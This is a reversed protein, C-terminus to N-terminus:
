RFLEDEEVSILLNQFTQQRRSTGDTFLQGWKKAVGLRYASLTQVIVLLMSRARRITWVSPLELVQCQPSFHHVATLINKNVATPPTGNVLQEM